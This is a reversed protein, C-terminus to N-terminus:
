SGIKSLLFRKRNQPTNCTHKGQMFDCNVDYGSMCKIVCRIVKKDFFSFEAGSPYGTHFKYSVMAVRSSTSHRTITISCLFRPTLCEFHFLRLLLSCSWCLVVVLIIFSPFDENSEVQIHTLDRHHHCESLCVYKNSFQFFFLWSGMVDNVTGIKNSTPTLSFKNRCYYMRVSGDYMWDNALIYDM